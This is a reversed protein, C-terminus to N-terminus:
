QGLKDLEAKVIDVVIDDLRGERFKDVNASATGGGGTAEDGGRTVFLYQGMTWQALQRLAYEGEEELSSAGIAYLKIGKKSAIQMSDTYPTSQAGNTHPAADTVVFSLRVTDGDDWALTNVADRLGGELDEPKDGGGGATLKNLQTQFAGIEATLPSFVKSSYVEGQDKYAVLGFRVSPQQPLDRIRTSITNITAQFKAIEGGMSGTTDMVIAMDLKAAPKAQTSAFKLEWDSTTKDEFTVSANDAEGKSATVAFAAQGAADKYASPHFLTRGDAYTKLEAITAGQADKVLVTANAVGKGAADVVRIVHRRSVDLKRPTATTNVADWAFDKLYDLYKAYDKNDDVAGAKLAPLEPAPMGPNPEGVAIGPASSASVMPPKMAGPASAKGASDAAVLNGEGAGILAGGNNSITGGSAPGMAPRAASPATSPATSAAATPSANGAGTTGGAEDARKASATSGPASASTLSPAACGSALVVSLAILGYSVSRTTM